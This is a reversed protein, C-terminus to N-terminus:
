LAACRLTLDAALACIGTRCQIPLLCPAGVDLGGAADTAADASADAPADGAEERGADSPGADVPAPAQPRSTPAPLAPPTAEAPETADSVTADAGSCGFAFAVFFAAVHAVKM